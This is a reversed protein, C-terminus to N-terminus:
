LEQNRPLDILVNTGKGLDSQVAVEGGHAEVINKVISLGLGTGGERRSYFPNFIHEIQDPAIGKGFDLVEVRVCQKVPIFSSRIVLQGDRESAQQANLIINAFVQSMRDTDMRITPLDKGYKSTVKCHVAELQEHLKELTQELVSNIQYPVMQLTEPKAYALLEKMMRELHTVEHLAVEVVHLDKETFVARRRLATLGMKISSLPNRLEHVLQAVLQGTAALKELNLRHREMRLLETTKEEVKKELNESYNKLEEQMALRETVDHFIGEIGTIENQSNRRTHFTLEIWIQSKQSSQIRAVQQVPHLSEPLDAMLQEWLTPQLYFDQFRKGSSILQGPDNYGLIKAGGRNIIVFQGEMDLEVVGEATANFLAKYRDSEAKLRNSRQLELRLRYAYYFVALLTFALFFFNFLILMQAYNVNMIGIEM